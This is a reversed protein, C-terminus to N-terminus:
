PNRRISTRSGIIRALIFLVLVLVVLVLAATWARNVVVDQSNRYNTWIFFPLSDQAGSFPNVNLRVSGFTTLLLPATEGIARALGLIVATVIGTRATPLVVRLTARWEPAGLALAAERLGGPVLRLVEETTRTISPLMLVTLAMAGALGSFGRQFQTIWVAYVFLGAVISPVGSMANVITRVPRALRGGIENLFVATAIALPVSMAMALMVQEITGVISQLAGGDTRGSLPGVDALTETFFSVRLAAFGKVIVSGLILVLVALVIMGVSSVVVAAVRDKAALKGHRHREVIAYILVSTSFWLIAFGPRGTLPVLQTFIMWTLSLGAAVSGVLEVADSARFSVTSIPLQHPPPAPTVVEAAADAVDPPLTATM